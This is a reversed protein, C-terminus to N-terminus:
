CTDYNVDINDWICGCDPKNPTYNLLGIKHIDDYTMIKSNDNDVNHHYLDIHYLNNNLNNNENNSSLVNKPKNVKIYRENYNSYTHNYIIYVIILSIFLILIYKIYKIYKSKKM